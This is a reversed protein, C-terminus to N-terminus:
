WRVHFTMYTYEEDDNKTITKTTTTTTTEIGNNKKENKSCGRNLSHQLYKARKM